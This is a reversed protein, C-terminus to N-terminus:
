EGGKAAAARDIVWMRMGNALTRRVQGGTIIFTHNPNFAFPKQAIAVTRVRAYPIGTIAETIIM